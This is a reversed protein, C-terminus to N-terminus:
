TSGDKKTATTITTDQMSRDFGAIIKNEEPSAPEGSLAWVGDDLNRDALVFLGEYLILVRNASFSYVIEYSVDDIRVRSTGAIISVM